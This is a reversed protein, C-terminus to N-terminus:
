IGQSHTPLVGERLQGPSNSAVPIFCSKITQGYQLLLWMAITVAVMVGSVLVFWRWEPNDRLIDINM